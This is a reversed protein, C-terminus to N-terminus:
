RYYELYILFFILTKEEKSFCMESKKFLNLHLVFLLVM